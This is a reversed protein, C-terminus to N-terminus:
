CSEEIQMTIFINQVKCKLSFVNGVQVSGWRQVYNQNPNVLVHFAEDTSNGQFIVEPM